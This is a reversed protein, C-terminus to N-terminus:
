DEDSESAFRSKFKSEGLTEDEEKEEDEKEKNEEGDEDGASFGSEDESANTLDDILGEVYKVNEEEKFVGAEVKKWTNLLKLKSSFDIMTLYLKFTKRISPIGKEFKVALLCRNIIDNIDGHDAILDWVLLVLDDDIGSLSDELKLALGRKFELDFDESEFIEIVLDKIEGSKSEWEIYDCWNNYELPWLEILKQYLLRTRKKNGLREEIDIYHKIMAGNPNLGILKGYFLRMSSLDGIRLLFDGYSTWVNVFTFENPLNSMLSEYREKIVMQGINDDLELKYLTYLYIHIYQIWSFHNNPLPINKLSDIQGTKKLQIYDWWSPYDNPDSELQLELLKIPDTGITSGLLRSVKIKFTSFQIGFLKDGFELLRNVYIGSNNKLEWEIWRQILEMQLLGQKYLSNVALSYVNRININDGFSLEFGIWKEWGKLPHETVFRECILRAEYVNNLRMELDIFNSWIFDSKDVKLWLEYIDRCSEGSIVREELTLWMFWLKSVKPLVTTARQLLNRAHSIFNHKIEMQIYFFWLKVDRGSSYEIARELVSRARRIDHQNVEFQAYQIWQNYNQSNLRLSSEFQTRKTQQFIRLEQLSQISFDKPNNKLQTNAEYAKSTDM